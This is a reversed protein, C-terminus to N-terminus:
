LRTDQLTDFLKGVFIDKELAAKLQRGCKKSCVMFMGDNGANRAESGKATVMMCVQKKEAGLDIEICHSQYESLDTDPKLKAGICFVEAEENIHNRCWTCKGLADKDPIISFDM